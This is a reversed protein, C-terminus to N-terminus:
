TARAFIFGRGPLVDDVKIDCRYNEFFEVTDVGMWEAIANTNCEEVTFWESFYPKNGRLHPVGQVPDRDYHVRVLLPDDWMAGANKLLCIM